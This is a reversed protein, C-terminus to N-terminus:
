REVLRVGDKFRQNKKLVSVLVTYVSAAYAEVTYKERAVHWGNEGLQRAWSPDQMFRRMCRALEEPGGKYLLGTHEHEIIEQTGGSNFGIVPRCAAMAEATVRGMAENRSCMLVADSALYAEYPDEVYGWFEISESVGLAAATERLADANGPGVILLRAGPMDNRLLALARVAEAQGKAPHIIGVLSFTYEDTRVPSTQTQATHFLRDLDQLSAVGNYIVFSKEPDAAALHYSRIADSIAIAADARGIIFRCLKKGWHYHAGYDLDGFERIHWVHPRRMACAAMAGIETVSTNTYIVDVGWARLRALLEPLLGVNERLLQMANYTWQLGSYLTGTIHDHHAGVHNRPSVWSRIPIVAHDVRRSRLAETLPGEEPAVVFSTVGYNELGDVLALLSRNAGHLTAYHTIFAVRL